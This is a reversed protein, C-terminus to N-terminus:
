EKKSHVGRQLFLIKNELLGVGILILITFLTVILAAMYHAFGIMAGIGALIWIVSASTIGLVHGERSIIVGAGLFGIGTIAQGLVRTVDVNAGTHTIGLSIFLNTGLCIFISTRIGAPKGKIQRELGVLAGRLLGGFPSRGLVGFKCYGNIGNEMWAIKRYLVVFFTIMHRSINKFLLFDCVGKSASFSPQM